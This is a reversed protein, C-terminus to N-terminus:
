QKRSGHAGEGAQSAYGIQVIDRRIKDIIGRM